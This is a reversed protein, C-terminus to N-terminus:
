TVQTSAVALRMTVLEAITTAHMKLMITARQRELARVSIGLGRAIATNSKLEVLLELVQKEPETLSLFRDRIEASSEETEEDNDLSLARRIAKM